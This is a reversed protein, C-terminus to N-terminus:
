IPLIGEYRRKLILTFSLYTAILATMIWMSSIAYAVILQYAAADLPDVGGILLGAMTGPIHVIGLIKLGDIQPVLAIRLVDRMLFKSAERYTAGDLFAAEVIEHNDEILSFTRAFVLSVAKTANGLLMGSIPVIINPLLKLVGTGVLLVAGPVLGAFMALFSILFKRPVGRGREAAIFAGAVLMFFILLLNVTMSFRFFYLLVSAMLGVQVLARLGAILIEKELRLDELWSILAPVILLLYGVLVGYKM